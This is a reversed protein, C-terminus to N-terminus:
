FNSATKDKQKSTEEKLQNQLKLMEKLKDLAKENTIKEQKIKVAPFYDLNPGAETLKDIKIFATEAKQAVSNPAFNFRLGDPLLMFNTPAVETAAVVASLRRTKNKAFKNEIERACLMSALQPDAFIDKFQLTTLTKLNINSVQTLNRTKGHIDQVITSELIAMNLMDIQMINITVEQTCIERKSSLMEDEDESLDSEYSLDEEPLDDANLDYSTDTESAKNIKISNIENLSHSYSDDELDSDGSLLDDIGKEIIKHNDPQDASKVITVTEASREKDEKDAPDAHPNDDQKSSSIEENSSNDLLLSNEKLVMEREFNSITYNSYYECLNQYRSERCEVPLHLITKTYSRYEVVDYHESVKPPAAYAANLLVAICLSVKLKINM